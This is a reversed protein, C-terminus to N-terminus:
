IIIRTYSKIENDTLDLTLGSQPELFVVGSETLAFNIAHHGIVRDIYQFYGLALSSGTRNKGHMLRAMGMSVLAYDDCDFSDAQYGGNTNDALQSCLQGLFSKCWKKTPLAYKSDLPEVRLNKQKLVSIVQNATLTKM